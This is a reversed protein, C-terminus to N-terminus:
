AATIVRYCELFAFTFKRLQRHPLSRWGRFRRFTVKRELSGIRCHDADNDRYRIFQKELSGIRCHDDLLASGRDLDMELSGIRCHDLWGIVAEFPSM